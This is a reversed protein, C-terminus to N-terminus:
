VKKSAMAAKLLTQYNPAGAGTVPDWGAQSCFGGGVCGAQCGSNVDTLAAMNEYIFPNLFGMPARGSRILHDNVLSIVGAFTPAACSTGDVPMPVFDVVVMFDMAMASVDPYGRGTRNYMKSAPLKSATQFFHEVAQTQYSPATYVNSFGGGSLSAATVSDSLAHGETGGVATVYPSSAPYDPRFVGNHCGAGSDGSAFLISIGRVGQKQFEQNTRDMYAKSLSDENDGYSVSFVSPVVTHNAVQELWALFGEQSQHETSMSWFWTTINAGLSMIYEVDLSAEAGAPFTNPGIVKAIDKQHAFSEGFLAFFELLDTKSYHQGLFQVVSQINREDAVGVTSDISYLKRLTSPTQFLSNPQKLTRAGRTKNRGVHPFRHVGGVFDLFGAVSQPVTYSSTARLVTAAFREHKFAHWQVQLLDSAQQVTLDCTAFERGRTWSCDTDVHVGVGVLWQKVGVIAAEEPAVLEMVQEHSLFQGYRVNDPSSVDWFTKVLEDTNSHKIAFTLRVSAGDSPLGLSKWGHPPSIHQDPELHVREEACVSSLFVFGLLVGLCKM